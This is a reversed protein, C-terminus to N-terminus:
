QWTYILLISPSFMAVCDISWLCHTKTHLTTIGQFLHPSM